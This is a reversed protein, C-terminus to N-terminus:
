SFQRRISLCFLICSHRLKHNNYALRVQLQNLNQSRAEPNSFNVGGNLRSIAGANANGRRTTETFGGFGSNSVEKSCM